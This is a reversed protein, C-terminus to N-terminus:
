VQTYTLPEGPEIACQKEVGVLLPSRNGLLWTTMCDTESDDTVLLTEAKFEFNEM